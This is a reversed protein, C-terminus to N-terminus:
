PKHAGTNLDLTIDLDNLTIVNCEIELSLGNEKFLQHFEKPREDARHDNINKFLALGNDRYIGISNKYFKNALNNLLFLDALEWIEAGDYAGM